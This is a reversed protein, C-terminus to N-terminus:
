RDAADLVRELAARSADDIAELPRAVERLDSRDGLSLVFIAGGAVALGLVLALIRIVAEIKGPEPTGLALVTPGAVQLTRNSQGFFDM